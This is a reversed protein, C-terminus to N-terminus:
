RPVPEPRTRDRPRARGPSRFPQGGRAIALLVAAHHQRQIIKRSIMLHQQLLQLLRHFDDGRLARPNSGELDLVSSSQGLPIGDTGLAVRSLNLDLLQPEQDPLRLTPPETAARLPEVGVLQLEAQLVELLGHGRGHRRLLLHRCPAAGRPRGPNSSAVQTGQRRVQRPNLGQDVDLVLITGAATSGQVRDALVRALHEVEDRRLQPHLHDAAGAVAAPGALLGHHL